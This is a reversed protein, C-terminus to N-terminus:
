VAERNSGVVVIRSLSYENLRELYQEMGALALDGEEHLAMLLPPIVGALSLEGTSM